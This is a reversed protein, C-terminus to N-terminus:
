LLQPKTETTMTTAHLSQLIYITYIKFNETNYLSIKMFRVNDSQILIYPFIYRPTIKM